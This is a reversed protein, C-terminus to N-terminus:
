ALTCLMNCYAVDNLLTGIDSFQGIFRSLGILNAPQLDTVSLHSVAKKKLKRLRDVDM